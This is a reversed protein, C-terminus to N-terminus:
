HAFWEYIDEPTVTVNKYYDIDVGISYKFAIWPVLSCYVTSPRRTKRSNWTWMSYTPNSDELAYMESRARKLNYDSTNYRCTTNTAIPYRYNWKSRDHKVMGDQGNDVRHNADMIKSGYSGCSVGAHGLGLAPKVGDRRRWILYIDMPKIDSFRPAHRRILERPMNLSQFAEARGVFFSVDSSSYPLHYKENLFATEKEEQEKSSSIIMRKVKAGNVMQDPREKKRPVSRPVTLETATEKNTFLAFASKGEKGLSILEKMEQNFAQVNEQYLEENGSEKLVHFGNAVSNLYMDKAVERTMELAGNAKYFRDFLADANEYDISTNTADAATTESDNLTTDDKNCAVFVSLCVLVLFVAKAANKFFQNMISM